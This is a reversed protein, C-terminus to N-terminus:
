EGKKTQFRHEHDRQVATIDDTLTEKGRSLFAGIILSCLKEQSACWLNTSMDPKRKSESHMQKARKKKKAKGLILNIM